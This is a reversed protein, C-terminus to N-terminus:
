LMSICEVYFDLLTTGIYAMLTNMSLSPMLRIMRLRLVLFLLAECRLWKILLSLAVLVVSHSSTYSLVPRSM